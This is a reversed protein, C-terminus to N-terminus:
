LKRRTPATEQEECVRLRGTAIRMDQLDRPGVAVEEPLDTGAVPYAEQM